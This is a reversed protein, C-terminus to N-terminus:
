QVATIVATPTFMFPLSLNAIEQASLLFGGGTIGKNNICHNFHIM